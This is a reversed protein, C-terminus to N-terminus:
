SLVHEAIVMRQVESTGQYIEAARVDRFLREVVSGRRYGKSALIQMAKDAARHAAESAYLKAMSADLTPSAQRARADAAKMTLMRAADLETAMDALMWQIAQYNGIPQGFASHSRAHELAAQLAADGVGLAQAAIAVRGGDLAWMAIRFGDGSGGLLADPELRVNRFELDECGLGRVGLSDQTATRSIGPTNMPVLFASIGRGRSGPQTAAFVIVLEAAEANAVWVKHGNLVYGREDLRAATQQNAADSGAQEESLAFAGISEGTALRRLWRDKQADSGFAALPEAVLSNNVAAIVAIVASARSLAEIALAYAVYDRGAGGWERPITVGLLGLAAAESVLARPFANHEDIASAHPAVRETAFREVGSQFARQEDTLDFVM